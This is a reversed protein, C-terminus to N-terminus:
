VSSHPTWLLDSLLPSDEQLDCGALSQMYPRGFPILSYVRSLASFGSTPCFTLSSSSIPVALTIWGACCTNSTPLPPYHLTLHTACSSLDPNPLLTSFSAYNFNLPHYLTFLSLIHYSNFCTLPSLRITSLSWTMESSQYFCHFSIQVKFLQSPHWQPFWILLPDILFRQLGGPCLSHTWTLAVTGTLSTFIAQVIEFISSVPNPSYIAFYALPIVPFLGGLKESPVSFLPLTWPFCISSPSPLTWLSTSLGGYIFHPEVLLLLYTHQLLSRM